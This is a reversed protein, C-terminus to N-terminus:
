NKCVTMMPLIICFVIMGFDVVAIGAASATESFERGAELDVIEGIVNM